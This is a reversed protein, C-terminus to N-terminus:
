RQEEWRTGGSIPERPCARLAGEGKALARKPLREETCGARGGARAPDGAPHPRNAFPDPKPTRRARPPGAPPTYIFSLGRVRGSEKV